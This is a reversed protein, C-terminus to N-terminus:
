PGRGFQDVANMSANYDRVVAPKHIKRKEGTKPNKAEIDVFNGQHRTSILFTQTKKKKDCYKMCMLSSGDPGLPKMMSSTEGKKLTKDKLESPIGIRNGRLTGVDDMGHEQLEEYLPISSFYSDMYVSHGKDHFDSALERVINGGQDKEATPGEKGSYIKFRSIYGTGAECCFYMKIGYRTPKSPNFQRFAVRGKWPMVSEDVALKQCPYYTDKCAKAFMDLFPRIKFLKDRYPVNAAPQEENNVVHLFQIIQEFRSRSMSTGFFPTELVPYTSWYHRMEPKVVVGMTILLVIFVNMEAASVETWLALYSHPPLLREAVELCQSAYRNTEEVLLNILSDPGFLKFYSLPTNGGPQM